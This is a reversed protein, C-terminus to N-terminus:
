AGSGSAQALNVLATARLSAVRRDIAARREAGARWESMTALSSPPLAGLTALAADIDGEDVQREARALIADPSDGVTSGVRRITVISALMYGIRDLVGAGEGPDRAALSAASAADDFEAALASRTPAGRGALARLALADPSLPLVKELAALEKDFPRSSSAAEALLAAALAAAAAQATRNQGAELTQLRAELDPSVVPPPTPEPAVAPAEPTAPAAEPTHVLPATPAAKDKAPWWWPTTAALGVGVAASFLCLALVTGVGLGRRRAYTQSSHPPTIEAPDSALTM